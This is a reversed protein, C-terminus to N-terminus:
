ENHRICSCPFDCVLTSGMQFFRKKVKWGNARAHNLKTRNLSEALGRPDAVDKIVHRPYSFCCLPFSCPKLLAVSEGIGCIEKMCFAWGCMAHAKTFKDYNVVSIDDSTSVCCHWRFAFCCCITTQCPIPEDYASSYGLPVMCQKPWARNWEVRNEMVWTYPSDSWKDMGSGESKCCDIINCPACCAWCGWCRCCENYKEDFQQVIQLANETGRNLSTRFSFKGGNSKSGGNAARRQKWQSGNDPAAPSAVAMPQMMPQQQQMPMPQQQQMPMPQQQPMPQQPPRQPPVRPSPRPSPTPSPTPKNWSRSPTVPPANSANSNNNGWSRQPTHPSPSANSNGGNTGWSSRQPISTPNPSSNKKYISTNPNNSLGPSANNSRSWSPPGSARSGVPKLQTNSWPAAM